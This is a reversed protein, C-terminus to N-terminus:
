RFGASIVVVVAGNCKRSKIITKVYFLYYLFM